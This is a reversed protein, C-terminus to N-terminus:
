EDGCLNVHNRRRTIKSPKGTRGDIAERDGKLWTILNQYELGLLECLHRCEDSGIYMEASDRWKNCTADRIAQSIVAYGLRKCDRYQLEQVPLM